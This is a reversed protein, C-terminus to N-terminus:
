LINCDKRIAYLDMRLVRSSKYVFHENKVVDYHIRNIAFPLKTNIPATKIRHKTPSLAVSEHHNDCGVLIELSAFVIRAISLSFDCESGPMRDMLYNSTVHTDALSAARTM